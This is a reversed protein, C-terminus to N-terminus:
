VGQMVVWSWGAVSVVAAAWWQVQFSTKRTKHRFQRQATFGAPFGGALDVALLMKEPIRGHGQRAMHKDFAYLAYSVLNFVALAILMGGALSPTM